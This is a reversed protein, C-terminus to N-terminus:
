ELKHLLVITFYQGGKVASSLHWLFLVCLVTSRLALYAHQSSGASISTPLLANGEGRSPRPYYLMGKEGTSTLPRSLPLCAPQTTLTDSVSLAAQTIAESLNKTKLSVIFCSGRASERIDWHAYLRPGEMGPALGSVM